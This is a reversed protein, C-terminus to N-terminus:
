LSLTTTDENYGLTVRGTGIDEIKIDNIMEDRKLFLTEGTRKDEIIAQPDEGPMIGVLRLEKVLDRLSPGETASQQRKRPAAPAFISKGSLLRQYDDFSGAEEKKSVQDKVTLKKTPEKDILSEEKATESISSIFLELNKIDKDEKKTFLSIIGIVMASLIIYVVILLIINSNITSKNQRTIITKIPEKNAKNISINSEEKLTIAEDKIVPKEEQQRDLKKPIDKKGKILHLLREEPSFEKNM